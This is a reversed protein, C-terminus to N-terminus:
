KGASKKKIRTVLLGRRFYEGHLLFPHAQWEESLDSECILCRLKRRGLPGSLAALHQDCRHAYNLGVPPRWERGVQTPVIEVDDSSRLVPQDYQDKEQV